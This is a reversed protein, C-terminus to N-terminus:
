NVADKGKKKDKKLDQLMAKNEEHIEILNEKKMAEFYEECLLQMATYICVDFHGCGRLFAVFNEVVKDTFIQNFKVVTEVGECDKHQFAYEEKAFPTANSNTM